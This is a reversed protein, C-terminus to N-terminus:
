YIIVTGEAPDLNDEASNISFTIDKIFDKLSKLNYASINPYNNAYKFLINSALM